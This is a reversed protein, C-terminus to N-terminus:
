PQGRVARGVLPQPGASRGHAARSRARRVSRARCRIAGVGRGAVADADPFIVEGAVGDADLERDRTAADWGGRLGEENDSYWEEAFEDNRLGRRAMEAARVAREAMFAGFAGRHRPDLYEVYQESPLGAHCDSSIVLYRM